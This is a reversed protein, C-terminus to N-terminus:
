EADVRVVVVREPGVKDRLAQIVEAETPKPVLGEFERRLAAADAFEHTWVSRGLAEEVAKHFAGFDMCLLDEYLQFEVIERPEADKWWGSEGLLIAQSKSKPHKPIM